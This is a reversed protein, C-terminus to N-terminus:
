SPFRTMKTASEEFPQLCRFLRLLIRVDHLLRTLLIDERRCYRADREDHRIGDTDCFSVEADIM